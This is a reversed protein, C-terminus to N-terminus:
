LIFKCLKIWDEIKLDEARAKESIGANELSIKIDEKNYINSLNPLLQKRKHAFGAHIIKFFLKEDVGNLKDKNINSITIVASDVNPQPTFAGRGVLRNIKPNGFIKVSLSLLSEKGDKAVIRDAVEKQILLTMMTPQKECELFMRIIQGTIYYPINAVVKYNGNPINTLGVDLVDAHILEFQKISIEKSFRRQLEPILRDDKEISIVHAGTELLKETLVGEGPGIELVTDNSKVEGALVIDDVIKPSNLFHQGLSKKTQMFRSILVSCRNKSKVEM